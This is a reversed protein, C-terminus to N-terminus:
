KVLSSSDLSPYQMLEGGGDGGSRGTGTGGLFDVFCGFGPLFCVLERDDAFSRLEEETPQLQRVVASDMQVLDSEGGSNEVDGESVEGSKRVSLIRAASDSDKSWSMTISTDDFYELLATTPAKSEKDSSSSGGIM